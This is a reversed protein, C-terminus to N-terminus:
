SHPQGDGGRGHQPHVAGHHPVFEAEVAGHVEEEDRASAGPILLSAALRGSPGTLVTDESILGNSLLQSEADM